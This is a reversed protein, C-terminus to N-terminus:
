LSPRSNGVGVWLSNPVPGPYINQDRGPAPNPSPPGNGSGVRGPHCELLLSLCLLTLFEWSERHDVASAM